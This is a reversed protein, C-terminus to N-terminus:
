MAPPAGPTIARPRDPAPSTSCRSPRAATQRSTPQFRSRRRSHSSCARGRSPTSDTSRPRTGIGPPLITRSRLISGCIHLSPRPTLGPCIWRWPPSRRNRRPSAIRPIPSSPPSSSADKRTAGCSRGRRPLSRPIRGRWPFACDRCCSDTATSSSRRPSSLRRAPRM